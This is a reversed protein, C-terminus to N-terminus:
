QIFTGDKDFVEWLPKDAPKSASDYIVAGYIAMLVSCAGIIFGCAFIVM